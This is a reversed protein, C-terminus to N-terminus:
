RPVQAPLDPAPAGALYATTQEGDWLLVRAGDSSVPAPFGEVAYPKKNRFTGMPIGM